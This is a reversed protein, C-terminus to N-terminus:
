FRRATLIKKALNNAYQALLKNALGHCWIAPTINSHSASGCGQRRRQCCIFVACMSSDQIDAGTLRIFFTPSTHAFPSTFLYSQFSIKREFIKWSESLRCVKKTLPINTQSSLPTFSKNFVCGYACVGAVTASSSDRRM